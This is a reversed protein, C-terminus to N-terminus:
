LFRYSEKLYQSLREIEAYNPKDSDLEADILSKIERQSLESPDIDPTLSQPSDVGDGYIDTIDVEDPDFQAEGQYSKDIENEAEWKKIEEAYEDELKVIDTILDEIDKKAKSKQFRDKNLIIQSGEIDFTSFLSKTIDLFQKDTYKGGRDKDLALQAFVRARMKSYKDSDKCANIFLNFMRQATVGYRFDEAEDKFSTTASKIANALERDLKISGSALLRFVGKVAEHILMPFDIGVATIVIKKYNTNETLYKLPRLRHNMSEWTVDVAGAMGGPHNKMMGAKDDLPVIWDLKDAVDSTEKWVDLIEKSKNGFIDKLGDEITKSLVIIDKTVKGEGQTIMNLIKKKSSALFIDLKKDGKKSNDESDQSPEESPKEIKSPNRQVTRLQDIQGIVDHGSDVLKIRLEVPKESAQLIDGYEEMILAEALDELKTKRERIESNSLERGREDTRVLQYSQRILQGIRPGYERMQYPSDKTVGLEREAQKDSKRVFDDPLGEIDKADIEEKIFQSYNKM